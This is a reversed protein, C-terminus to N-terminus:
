NFHSISGSRYQVCACTYVMYDCADEAVWWKLSAIEWIFITLHLTDIELFSPVNEQRDQM